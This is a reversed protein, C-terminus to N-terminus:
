REKGLAKLYSVMQWLQPDPLHSWSPMGRRIRGNRLVWFLSGDPAAQILASHLNAAHGCGYGDEGHCAACHQQFLKRGAAVAREDGAFPNPVSRASTPVDRLRAAPGEEPKIKRGAAIVSTVLLIAWLASAWRGSWGSRQRASCENM